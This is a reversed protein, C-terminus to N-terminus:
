PFIKQMDNKLNSLYEGNYKTILIYLLIILTLLILNKCCFIFIIYFPNILRHCFSNQKQNIPRSHNSGNNSSSQPDSSSTFLTDAEELSKRVEAIIESEKAHQDLRVNNKVDKTKRHLWIQIQNEAEKRSIRMYKMTNEVLSAYESEFFDNDDQLQGNGGNGGNESVSNNIKSMRENEPLKHEITTIKWKIDTQVFISEIADHPSGKIFLMFKNEVPWEPFAIEEVNIEETVLILEIIDAIQQLQAKNRICIRVLKGYSKEKRIIGYADTIKQLMTLVEYTLNM